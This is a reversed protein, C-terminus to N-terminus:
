YTAAGAAYNLTNVNILINPRTSSLWGDNIGIIITDNAFWKNVISEDFYSMNWVSGDELYVINNYYDIAIIWHTHPHEYIPGLYLNAVISDGSVQHTLRFSYSSFWSHNPSIVIIPESYIKLDNVDRAFWGLAIYADEPAITWIAGDETELALTDAISIPTVTHFAGPHTTYYLSNSVLMNGLNMSKIMQPDSQDSSKAETSPTGDEQLNLAAMESRIKEHAMRIEESEARTGISIRKSEQVEQSFLTTTLALCIFLSSLRRMSNEKKSM